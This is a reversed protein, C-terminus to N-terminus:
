PSGGVCLPRTGSLPGALRGGRKAVPFRREFFRLLRDRYLLGRPLVRPERTPKPPEGFRDRLVIQNEDTKDASDTM